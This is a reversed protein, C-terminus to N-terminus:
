LSYVGRRNEPHVEAVKKGLYDMIDQKVTPSGSFIKAIDLIHEPKGISISVDTYNLTACSVPLLGEGGIVSVPLVLVNEETDILRYVGQLFQHLAGDRSRKGEPFVLFIKVKEKIDSVVKAAARAIVRIPLPVELTAVSQSQAILLSHFHMSAFKRLPHSFVKPGAIVSLQNKFGAECFYKDFAVAIINADSYSLHNAVIVLRAANGEKLIRLANQLHEENKLNINLMKKLVSDLCNKVLLSGESYGWDTGACEYKELFDIIINDDLESVFDNIFPVMNEPVSKEWGSLMKMFKTNIESM